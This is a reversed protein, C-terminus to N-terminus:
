KSAQDDQECSRMRMWAFSVITRDQLTVSDHSQFIMMGYGNMGGVNSRAEVRAHLYTMIMGMIGVSSALM